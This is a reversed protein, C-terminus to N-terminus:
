WLTGGVQIAPGVMGGFTGNPETREPRQAVSSQTVLAATRELLYTALHRTLTPAEIVDVRFAPEFRREVEGPVLGPFAKSPGSFSMRPLDEHRGCFAFLFFRSGPRALDTVYAAM